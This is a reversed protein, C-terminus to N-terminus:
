LHIGRRKMVTKLDTIAQTTTAIDDTAESEMRYFDADALAGVSHKLLLKLRAKTKQKRRTLNVLECALEETSKARLHWQTPTLLGGKWLKTRVMVRSSALTRRAFSKVMVLKPM